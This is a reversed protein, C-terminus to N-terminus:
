HSQVDSRRGFNTRTLGDDDIRFAAPRILPESRASKLVPKTLGTIQVMLEGQVYANSVGMGFGIIGALAYPTAGGSPIASAGGSSGFGIGSTKNVPRIVYEVVGVTAGHEMANKAASCLTNLWPKDKAQLTSTGLFGDMTNSPQVKDWAPYYLAIEKAASASDGIWDDNVGWYGLGNACKSAQEYTMKVPRVAGAGNVFVEPKYPQTFNPYAPNFGPLQILNPVTNSTISTAQENGQIGIQGQQQFQDQNQGQQQQQGAGQVQIGFQAFAPTAMVVIALATAVVIKKM